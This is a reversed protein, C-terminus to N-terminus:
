FKIASRRAPKEELNEIQQQLQKHLTAKSVPPPVVKDVCNIVAGLLELDEDETLEDAAQGLINGQTFGPRTVLLMGDAYSQLTLADNCSSLPPTDLLVFDFRGRADELLRQFEGSELIAAVHRVPAPSPVIYLNEVDPVLRICEGLQGYYRLPEGSADPDPAMKLAKASTPSRLDAEVLLTRKGARAAAIALNYATMTKGEQSEASTLLLVKLPNSSELHLKSRVQEYFELYPSDLDVLFPTEGATSEVLSLMPLEGLVSVDRQRLVEKIEEPTYCTADLSALLFILGAGALLGVLGGAGVVLLVSMKQKVDAAVEPPQAITLSTVTEAEAAKADTLAVQMKNYLVQQLQVQQQLRAQELQKNPMKTYEQRLEKETKRSADLQQQLTERQTQLAVLTNALQQRSPDLSSDARIRAPLAAVKIKGEKGGMVEDARQQLLKEYVQQKKNLDIMTPHEARLDQSLIKLQTENEQIQARLRAILPDASLASSTYAEDPNLGLRRQLSKIQTDVGGLTLVLQRQQSQAGTIGGLITGDQAALIAPGETRIFKELNQEATKLKKQEDPLRKNISEIIARLRFKNISGSHEVMTKMLADVTDRARKPDDDVYGVEIRQPGPAADRAKGPAKPLNVKAKQRFKDLAKRDTLNIKLQQAVAKVVSEDLLMEETIQKGQEQIQPGTSTFSTPPPNFTLAGTAVYTVPPPPMMAVVGSLGVGVFLSALPILKYQDLAILYRKVIPPTM